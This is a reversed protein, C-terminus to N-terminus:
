EVDEMKTMDQIELPLNQTAYADKQQASRIERTLLALVAAAAIQQPTHDSDMLQDDETYLYGASAACYTHFFSNKTPTAIYLGSKDMTGILEKTSHWISDPNKWNVEEHNSDLVTVQKGYLLHSGFLFNEELADLPLVSVPANRADYVLPRPMVNAEELLSMIYNGCSTANTYVGLSANKNLKDNIHDVIAKHKLLSGLSAANIKLIVAYDLSYKDGSLAAQAMVLSERRDFNETVNLINHDAFDATQTQGAVLAEIEGDTYRPAPLAPNFGHKQSGEGGTFGVKYITSEMLFPKASADDPEVWLEFHRSIVAENPGSALHYAKVTIKAAEEPKPVECQIKEVDNLSLGNNAALADALCRYNALPQFGNLGRRGMLRQYRFNLDQMTEALVNTRVNVAQFEQYAYPTPAAPTPLINMRVIMSNIQDNTADGFAHDMTSGLVTVDLAHASMNDISYILNYLATADQIEREEKVSTPEAGSPIDSDMENNRLLGTKVLKINRFIDLILKRNVFFGLM